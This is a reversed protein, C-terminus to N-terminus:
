AKCIWKLPMGYFKGRVGKRVTKTGTPSRLKMFGKPQKDIYVDYGELKNKKLVTAKGGEWGGGCLNVKEGKKFRGAM